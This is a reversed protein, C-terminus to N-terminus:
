DDSEKDAQPTILENLLLKHADMLAACYGYHWYIREQTGEVCHQQQEFVEPANTQLWATISDIRQQLKTLVDIRQGM